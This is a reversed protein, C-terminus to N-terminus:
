NKPDRKELEEEFAKMNEDSANIWEDLKYHDAPSITEALFQKILKKIDPPIKM